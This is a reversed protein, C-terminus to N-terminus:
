RSHASLAAAADEFPDGEEVVVKTDRELVERELVKGKEDVEADMDVKPEIAGAADGGGESGVGTPAMAPPTM